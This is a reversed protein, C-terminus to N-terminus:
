GHSAKSLLEDTVGLHEAERMIFSRARIWNLSDLKGNLYEERHQRLAKLLRDVTQADTEM